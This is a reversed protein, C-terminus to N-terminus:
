AVGSCPPSARSRPGSAPYRKAATTPSRSPPIPSAIRAFVFQGDYRINNSTYTRRGFGLYGGGRQAVLALPIVVAVMLALGLRALM